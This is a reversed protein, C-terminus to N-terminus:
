AIDINFNKEINRRYNYFTREPLPEGESFPSLMWLRNIEKRSLKEYRTLTDVIWVYRGILDHAM